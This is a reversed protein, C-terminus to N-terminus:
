QWFFQYPYIHQVNELLGYFYFIAFFFMFGVKFFRRNGIRNFRSILLPVYFIIFSYYFYSIRNMLVFVSSFFQIVTAFAIVYVYFELMPDKRSRMSHVWMGLITLGCLLVSMPSIGSSKELIYDTDELSSYTQIYTSIFTMLSNGELLFSAFLAGLMFIIILRPNYKRGYLFYLPLLTIATRQILTAGLVYLLFSVFKRDVVSKLSCLGLAVSISARLINLTNGFILTCFLFISLFTNQSYKSIAYFYLFLIVFSTWVLYGRESPLFYSFIKEIILFGYERSGYGNQILDYFSISKIDHYEPLYQSLDGGVDFSRGASFAFFLFFTFFCLFARPGKEQPLISSFIGAFLIFSLLSLYAGMDLTLSVFLLELKSKSIIRGDKQIIDEGIFM